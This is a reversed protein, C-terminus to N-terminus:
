RQSPSRWQLCGSQSGVTRATRGKCGVSGLICAKGAPVVLMNVKSAAGEAAAVPMIELRGAADVAGAATNALQRQM